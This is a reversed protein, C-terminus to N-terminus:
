PTVKAPVLVAFAVGSRYIPHAFGEPGVDQASGRPAHESLLVSGEAVMRTLKKEAGWGSHSEVRGGRVLMSYSGHLWDIRDQETPTFLSLLWWAGSQVEPRGPSGPVLLDPLTGESIQPTKSRGWGRSREGGIGSDALLAFAGRLREAWADRAADDAFSVAVWVGADAAFELCATTFPHVASGTLRDVAASTRMATRCPGTPPRNKGSPLLCESAGDVMWADENLVGDALLKGIAHVPVFRAGKWRVKVSPQPPWHSQPPPAFLTDALFPFGSSLRVAPEPAHVTADLWEAGAGLQSMAITLASFLTDSHLTRDVRDRAGTPPGFRWPGTPRFRVIWAPNM